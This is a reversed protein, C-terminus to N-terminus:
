RRELTRPGHLRWHEGLLVAAACAVNLSELHGTGPIKVRHDALKLLSKSLGHAESGLMVVAASPLTVAADETPAYLAQSGRPTTAILSLGAARARELPSTGAPVPVLDVWEAGGQATRMLASSLQLSAGCALVALAGFHACVRLIAGLNHPNEVRELYVIVTPEDRARAARARELVADLRAAPRERVLMSIGEHHVSGTVRKLEADDVVHYAVRNNAAQKLLARFRPILDESIYIRRIDQPRRAAVTLCANVGCVKLEPANKSPRSGHKQGRQGSREDQSRPREGRNRPREGQNRPREGQNRPGRRRAKPQRSDPDRDNVARPAYCGAALASSSWVRQQAAAGWTLELNAAGWTLELNAAGPAFADLCFSERADDEPREHAVVFFAPDGTLVLPASSTSRRTTTAARSWSSAAARAWRSSRRRSAEFDLIGAGDVVEVTYANPAAPSALTIIQAETGTYLDFRGLPM